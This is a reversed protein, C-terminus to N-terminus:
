VGPENNGTKIEHLLFLWVSKSKQAELPTRCNQIVRFRFQTIIEITRHLALYRIVPHNFEVTPRKPHSGVYMVRLFRGSMADRNCGEPNVANRYRVALKAMEYICGSVYGICFDRRVRLIIRTRQRM